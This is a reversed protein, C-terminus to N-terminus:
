GGLAATLPARWWDGDAPNSVFRDVLGTLAALSAEDAGANWAAIMARGIATDVHVALARSGAFAPHELDDKALQSHNPATDGAARDAATAARTQQDALAEAGADV